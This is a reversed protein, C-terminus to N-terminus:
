DGLARAKALAAYMLIGHRMAEWVLAVRDGREDSALMLRRLEWTGYNGVGDAAEEIWEEILDRGPPLRVGGPECRRDALAHLAEAAQEMGLTAGAERLCQAEFDKDREMDTM